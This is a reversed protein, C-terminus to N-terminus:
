HSLNSWMHLLRLYNYIHINTRTRCRHTRHTKIHPTPYPHREEKERGEDGKKRGMEGKEQWKQGREETHSWNITIHWNQPTVQTNINLYMINMFTNVWRPLALITYCLVHCMIGPLMHVARSSHLELQYCICSLVVNQWPLVESIRVDPWRSDMSGDVDWNNSQLNCVGESKDAVAFLFIVNILIPIWCVPKFYSFLTLYSTKSFYAYHYKRLMELEYWCM